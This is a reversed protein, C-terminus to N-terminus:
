RLAGGLKRVRLEERDKLFDGVVKVLAGTALLLEATDQAVAATMLANANPVAGTALQTKNGIATLAASVAGAGASAYKTAMDIGEETGLEGMGASEVLKRGAGTGLFVQLVKGLILPLVVIALLRAPGRVV